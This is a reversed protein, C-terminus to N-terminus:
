RAPLSITVETGGEPPSELAITGRHMEVVRKATPLGLGTGRHKTTFFPEFVRERVDPPIGPGYDRIRVDCWGDRRTLTVDIRGSGGVAQASNLLLNLVVTQLQEVDGEVVAEEGAVVVDLAAFAPDKRLLDVTTSVLAGLVVTDQRPARPRAFLLLDQVINNLSDLRALIDGIVSRDRNDAPLRAGIIQLAGRIGALPNKVEHAVVAAMEGLRTLAAQERMRDEQRKRETIDNRIAMYQYPKGREDVFPVITTDVWYSSGDKARNKIEGRWVQGRAITRWLDRIFEKPHYGSNILRHDQGILEERPYKSIECFKDNVYTIRGHVDTTAVIASQDLAYKLDQLDKISRRLATEATRQATIDEGSGLTGIVQGAADRVLARHWHIMREQGRATLVPYDISETGAEGALFQAHHARVDERVGAPVFISFWDRGVVETEGYGLIERGRRNLLIVRQKTDLVLLIVSAVDLYLQARLTRETLEDLTVRRQVVLIATIWLALVILLRNLFGVRLDGSPSLPIDAWTLATAAAAAVVSFMPQPTWMGFLIPIVYLIAVATGLPQTIDFLFVGAGILLAAAPLASRTKFPLSRTVSEEM